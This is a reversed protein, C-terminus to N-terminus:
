DTFKMKCMFVFVCVLLMTKLLKNENKLTRAVDELIRNRQTLVRNRENLVRNNEEVQNLTNMLGQILDNANPSVAEQAWCVFGCSRGQRNCCYFQRGPNTQTCSTRVLTPAGCDCRVM